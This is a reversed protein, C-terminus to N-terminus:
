DEYIITIWGRNYSTSDYSGNDFFGSLNRYLYVYTPSASQLYLYGAFNLDVFLDNTDNRIMCYLFRIKTYDINHLLFRNETSDMNWDGIEMMKVKLGVAEETLASTRYQAYLRLAGVSDAYLVCGNVYIDHGIAHGAQGSHVEIINKGESTSPPLRYENAGPIGTVRTLNTSTTVDRLICPYSGALDSVDILWQTYLFYRTPSSAPYNAAAPATWNTYTGSYYASQIHLHDKADSNWPDILYNQLSDAM